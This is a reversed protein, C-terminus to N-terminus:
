VCPVDKGSNFKFGVVPGTERCWKSESNVDIYRLRLRVRVRVRITVSALSNARVRSLSRAM